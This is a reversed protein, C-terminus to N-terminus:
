EKIETITFGKFAKKDLLAARITSRKADPSETGDEYKFTPPTVTKGDASVTFGLLKYAEEDSGPGSLGKRMVLIAKKGKGNDIEFKQAPKTPGKETGAATNRTRKPAEGSTANQLAVNTGKIVEAAVEYALDRIEPGWAQVITEFKNAGRIEKFKAGLNKEDRKAQEMETNLKAFTEDDAESLAKMMAARIDALKTSEGVSTIKKFINKGLEKAEQSYFREGLVKDYETQASSPSKPTNVM